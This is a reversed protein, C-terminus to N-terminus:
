GPGRPPRTREKVTRRVIAVVDDLDVPKVLFDAAGLAFGAGREDLMSVIVVPIAATAPDRKLQALVDWGSLRPLLVDLVM